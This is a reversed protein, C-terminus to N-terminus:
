SFDYKLYLIGEKILCGVFPVGRIIGSKMHLSLLICNFHRGAASGAPYEDM